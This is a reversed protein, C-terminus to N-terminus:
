VLLITPLTLHTYSVAILIASYDCCLCQLCMFLYVKSRWGPLFHFQCSATAAFSELALMCAPGKYFSSTAFGRWLVPKLLAVQLRRLEYQLGQGPSLSRLLALGAYQSVGWGGDQLIRIGRGRNHSLTCGYHLMVRTLAYAFTYTNTYTSFILTTYQSM